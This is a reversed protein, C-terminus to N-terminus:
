IKGLANRYMDRLKARGIPDKKIDGINFNKINFNKDRNPQLPKDKSKNEKISNRSFSNVPEAFQPYEELFSDIAKGIDNDEGLEIFDPKIKLGRKAIEEQVETYTVIGKVQEDLTNARKNEEKFKTRWMAAEDRLEKVYDASYASSRGTDNKGEAGGNTNENDTPMLGETKLM